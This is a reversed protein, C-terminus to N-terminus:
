GRLGVAELAEARSGYAWTAQVKGERVQWVHYITSQVNADSGRLRASQSVTVLVNDGVPTFEEPVLRYESYTADLDAWLQPVEELRYLARGPFDTRAHFAYDEAAADRVSEISREVYAVEYARRVIEVNERSM